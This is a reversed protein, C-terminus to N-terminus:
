WWRQRVISLWDYVGGLDPPCLIQSPLPPWPIRIRPAGPFVPYVRVLVATARPRLEVFFFAIGNVAAVDSLDSLQQQHRRDNPMVWGDTGVSKADFAVYRGGAIVGQFDPPSPLPLISTEGRRTIFRARQGCRFIAADGNALYRAHVTALLDELAAGQSQSRRGM